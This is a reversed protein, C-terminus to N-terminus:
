DRGSGTIHTTPVRERHACQQLSAPSWTGAAHPTGVFSCPCARYVGSSLPRASTASFLPLFPVPHTTIQRFPHNFSSQTTPNTWQTIRCIAHTTYKHNAILTEAIISCSNFVGIHPSLLTVFNPRLLLERTPAMGCIAVQDRATGCDCWRHRSQGVTEALWLASEWWAALIFIRTKALILPKFKAATLGVVTWTVLQRWLM